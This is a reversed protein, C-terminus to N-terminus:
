GNGSTRSLGQGRGNTGGRGCSRGSPRHGSRAGLDAHWAAPLRAAGRPALGGRWVVVALWCGWWPDAGVAPADPRPPMRRQASTPGRYSADAKRRRSTEVARKEEATPYRFNRDGKRKLNLAAVINADGTWGCHGCRFRSPSGRGGPSFREGLRSCHPRAQSTWARNREVLRIRPRRRPPACPGASPRAALTRAQPKHTPEVVLGTGPPIPAPARLGVGAVRRRGGLRRHGRRGAVGGGCGAGRHVAVPGPQQARGQHTPREAKAVARGEAVGEGAQRRPALFTITMRILVAM